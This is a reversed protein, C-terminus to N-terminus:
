KKFVMGILKFLSFLCVLFIAVSGVYAWNTAGDVSTYVGFLSIMLDQMM